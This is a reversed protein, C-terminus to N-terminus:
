DEREYALKGTDLVQQAKLLYQQIRRQTGADMM